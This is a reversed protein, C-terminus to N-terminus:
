LNLWDTKSFKWEHPIEFFDRFKTLNERPLSKKWFNFFKKLFKQLKGTNSCDDIVTVTHGAELLEVVTHSGIFGAGGTVLLDMMPVQETEYNTNEKIIQWQCTIQYSKLYFRSFWFFQFYSRGPNKIELRIHPQSRLIKFKCGSFDGSRRLRLPLHLILSRTGNQYRGISYRFLLHVNIFDSRSYIFM